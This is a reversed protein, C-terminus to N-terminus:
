ALWDIHGPGAAMARVRSLLISAGGTRRLLTQRMMQRVANQHLNLAGRDPVRTQQAPKHLWGATAARM